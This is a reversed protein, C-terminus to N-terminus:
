FDLFNCNETAYVCRNKEKCFSFGASTNCGYDEPDIIAIIHEFVAVFRISQITYFMLSLLFFRLM